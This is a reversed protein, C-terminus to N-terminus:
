SYIDLPSGLGTQQECAEPGSSRWVQERLAGVWRAGATERLPRSVSGERNSM